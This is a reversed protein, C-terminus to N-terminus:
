TVKLEVRDKLRKKELEQNVSDIIQLSGSAQGCTGSSIVITKKLPIREALIESKWAALEEPHNIREM